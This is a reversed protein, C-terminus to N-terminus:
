RWFMSVQLKVSCPTPSSPVRQVWTNMDGYVRRPRNLPDWVRKLTVWVRKPTVWVPKLTVWVRKLTGM